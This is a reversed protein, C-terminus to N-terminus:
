KQFFNNMTYESLLEEIKAISFYNPLRHVFSFYKILLEINPTNNLKYLTNGCQPKHNFHLESNYINYM